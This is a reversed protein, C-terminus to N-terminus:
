PTDLPTDLRRIIFSRNSWTPEGLDPDGIRETILYTAGQRHAEALGGITLATHYRERLQALTPRRQNRGGGGAMGYVELFPYSEDIGLTQMRATWDLAPTGAYFLLCGDKVEGFTSRGSGVRWGSRYPPTIFVADAPANDRAWHQAALWDPEEASDLWPYPRDVFALAGLVMALVVAVMVGVGARKPCGASCTDPRHTISCRPADSESSQPDVPTARGHSPVLAILVGLVSIGIGAAIAHRGEFPWATMLGLVALASFWTTRTGALSRAIWVAILLISGIQALMLSRGVMLKWLVPERVGLALLALGLAPFALSAIIWLGLQRLAPNDAPDLPQRGPVIGLKWAALAGLGLLAAVSAWSALPATWPDILEPYLGMGISEFADLLDAPVASVARLVLLATAGILGIIIVAILRRRDHRTTWLAMVGWATLLYASTQGQIPAALAAAILALWLRQRIVLGLSLAVLPLVAFTATLERDSLSVLGFWNQEKPVVLLLAPIMALLATGIGHMSGRGALRPLVPWVAWALTIAFIATLALHIGLVLVPLTKPSSITAIGHWFVSGLAAFSELYLDDGFTGPQEITQLQVLYQAQDEVGFRYQCVSTSAWALAAAVLVLTLTIALRSARSHTPDSREM